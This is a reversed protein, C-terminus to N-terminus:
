IYYFNIILNKPFLIKPNKYCYGNIYSKQFDKIKNNVNKQDINFNIIKLETFQILLKQLQLLDLNKNYKINIDKFYIFDIYKNFLEFENNKYIFIKENNEIHQMNYGYNHWLHIGGFNYDENFLNIININKSKIKLLFDNDDYAFGFSYDYSFNKILDFTNKTLATLFHYNNCTKRNQYWLYYINENYIETTLNETNYIIENNELSSTAKVDFVYYNNDFTYKSIWGLIDGVHCVEGNQIVVKSGKIFKFGINYNVVPNIWNKNEKKIIIFDINFPLNDLMHKEIPDTDSDDVIIVQINQFTCKQITKLTYYVQRSRNSATMVISITDEYIPINSINYHSFLSSDFNEVKEIIELINKKNTLLSQM